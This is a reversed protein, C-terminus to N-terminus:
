NNNPEAARVVMIGTQHKNTKLYNVLTNKTIEVKHGVNPSHMFHIRGDNLRVAIGTHIIDLGAIDTTIGIIDGSQIDKEISEIKNKPIYYYDRMNIMKEILDMKEIFNPNTVLQQYSSPHTSMFNVDNHYPIGGIEKTINKVIRRKSVDYIWDSFYHLRSPYEDIVGNRYRVKILERRFDEFSNRELKICRAFVLSSELFTYCDLGTLHVVLEEKEGQELSHAAYETGIFSKGIEVIVENIPKDALNKSSAFEFKRTCINVDDQTYIGQAFSISTFM